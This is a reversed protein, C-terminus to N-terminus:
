DSHSKENTGAKQDEVHTVTTNEHSQEESEKGKVEEEVLEVKKEEKAVVELNKTVGLDFEEGSRDSCFDSSSCSSQFAIRKQFLKLRNLSLEKEASAGDVSDSAGGVVCDSGVSGVDMGVESGDSFFLAPSRSASSTELPAGIGLQM